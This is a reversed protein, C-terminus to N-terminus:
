SKSLDDNLVSKLKKPLYYKMIFFMYKLSITTKLRFSPKLFKEYEKKIIPDLMPRYLNGYEFYDNNSIIQSAYINEGKIKGCHIGTGDFGHNRVLSTGPSVCYFKNLNMFTAIIIDELVENNAFGSLLSGILHYNNNQALSFINSPSMLIKGVYDLNVYRDIFIYKSKTIGFGWAALGHRFFYTKELHEPVLILHTYGCIAIVSRENEFFTLGKNIYDLFNPSFENDDESVIIRDYDEFVRKRADQLNERAGFNEQREIVQASKFGKIQPIYTKIKEYGEWHSEKLPYDLAIFLDTKQAHTCKSLSEVCRKFHIHRNLTPILVPAFNDM